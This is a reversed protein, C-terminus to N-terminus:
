YFPLDIRSLDKRAGTLRAFTMAFEDRAKSIEQSSKYDSIRRHGSRERTQIAQGLFSTFGSLLDTEIRVRTTGAPPAVYQFEIGRSPRSRHAVACTM